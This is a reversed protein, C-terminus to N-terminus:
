RYNDGYWEHYYCASCLLSTKNEYKHKYKTLEEVLVYKDCGHCMDKTYEDPLEKLYQECKCCFWRGKEVTVIEHPCTKSNEM